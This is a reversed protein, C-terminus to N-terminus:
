LEICEAAEGTVMVMLHEIGVHAHVVPVAARPEITGPEIAEAIAGLGACEFGRQNETRIPERPLVGILDHDELFEFAIPDADDKELLRGAVIRVRAEKGLDLAGNGFILPHFDRLPVPPAFQKAGALTFDNEPLDGIAVSPNWATVGNGRM